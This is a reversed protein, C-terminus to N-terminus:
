LTIFIRVDFGFSLLLDLIDSGKQERHSMCTNYPIFTSPHQVSSGLYNPHTVPILLTYSLKIIRWCAAQATLSLGTNIRSLPYSM